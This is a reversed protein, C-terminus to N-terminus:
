PGQLEIHATVSEEVDTNIISFPCWHRLFATVRVRFSPVTLRTFCVIKFNSSTFQYKACTFGTVLGRPFHRMTGHMHFWHSTSIALFAHQVNGKIRNHVCALQVVFGASVVFGTGAFMHHHHATSQSSSAAGCGGAM